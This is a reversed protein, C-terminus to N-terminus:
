IEPVTENCPWGSGRPTMLKTWGYPSEAGTPAAETVPISDPQGYVTCSSSFVLKRVGHEVMAEALAITSGLNNGYYELPIAVSEGM